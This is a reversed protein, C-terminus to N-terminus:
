QEFSVMAARSVQEQWQWPSWSCQSAEQLASRTAVAAESHAAAAEPEERGLLAGAAEDVVAGAAVPLTPALAAAADADAVPPAPFFVTPAVNNSAAAPNTAIAQPTANRYLISPFYLM